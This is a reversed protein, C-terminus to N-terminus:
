GKQRPPFINEFFEVHRKSQPGPAHTFIWQNLANELFIFVMFSFIKEWMHHFMCTLSFEVLM